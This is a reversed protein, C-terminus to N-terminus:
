EGAPIQGWGKVTQEWGLQAQELEQNNSEGGNFVSPNPYSWSSTSVSFQLRMPWKIEPPGRCSAQMGMTLGWWSSSFAPVSPHGLSKESARHTLLRHEAMGVREEGRPGTTWKGSNRPSIFQGTHHPFCPTSARFGKGAPALREETNFLFPKLSRCSSTKLLVTCDRSPLCM